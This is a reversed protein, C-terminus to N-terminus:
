YTHGSLQLATLSINSDYNWRKVEKQILPVVAWNRWMIALSIHMFANQVRQWLSLPFPFSGLFHPAYSPNLVNGLVASLRHDMGPTSVTIFPVEHLFPYGISPIQYLDRAIKPLRAGWAFLGGFYKAEKFLNVDPVPGELHIETVNPHKFIPPLSTLMLIKHGRDGLAEVLPVFVNRHSTTAAPILVLIKYSRDPPSLSGAASGALCLALVWLTVMKMEPYRKHVKLSSAVWHAKKDM